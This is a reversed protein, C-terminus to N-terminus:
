GDEESSDRPDAEAPFVDFEPNEETGYISIVVYSGEEGFGNLIENLGDYM